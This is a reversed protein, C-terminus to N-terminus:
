KLYLVTYMDIGLDWATEGRDGKGWTFMHGNELDTLRDRNTWKCKFYNNIM